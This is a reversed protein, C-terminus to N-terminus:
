CCYAHAMKFNRVNCNAYVSWVLMCVVQRADPANTKFLDLIDIIIELIHLNRLLKQRDKVERESSPGSIYNALDELARIVSVAEQSTLVSTSFNRQLLNCHM